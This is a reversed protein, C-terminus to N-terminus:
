LVVYLFKMTGSKISEGEPLGVVGAVKLGEAQLGTIKLSMNSLVQDDLTNRVGYQVIVCAPYVHKVVSIAYEASAADNVNVKTTSFILGSEVFKQLASVQKLAEIFEDSQSVAQAVM